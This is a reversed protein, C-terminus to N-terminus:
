FRDLELLRIPGVYVIEPNAKAPRYDEVRLRLPLTKLDAPLEPLPAVFWEGNFRTIGLDAKWLERDGWLIRISRYGAWRWKAHGFGFDEKTTDALYLLLALRDRHGSIPLNVPLECFSNANVHEHKSVAFVAARSSGHEYLGGVWDGWFTERPEPLVTALVHNHGEWVGTGIQVPPDSFNKLMQDAPAVTKSYDTIWTRLDAQRKSLLEKWDAPTATARKRWWAVYGGVEGAKALDKEVQSVEALVRDRVADILQDAKAVDGDHVANLLKSQHEPWWYEPYPAQAAALGTEIEWGMPQLYDKELLAPDLLSAPPAAQRLSALMPQLAKLEAQVQARDAQSKLRAPCRPASETQSSWFQFRSHIKPLADDFARATAVQAPGFVMDYVRRRIAQQDYQEPRWSWWGIVPVLYHQLAQWGDWPLVAHVYRGMEKLETVTPHNWGDALDLVPVYAGGRYSLSPYHLRPWNHWWSPRVKLGIAEGDAADEACPISTWYWVAQEMGPVSVVDRNFKYNIVQYAGKPPTVAIADGTIQHERGLALVKSMMGKPDEGPGKDDFSAWLADAGLDIFEKFTALVAEQETKPVGTNVAAYVRLGRDRADRIVKGLEEKKLKAGAEFAYIGDRLDIFNIRSSMICDWNEPKFFYQYHPHPRGRLPIGPWDRITAAQVTLKGDRKGLLQFLTDQGYIVARPNRAAVVATVGGVEAWVKLAYSEPRDPVALQQADCLRALAPFTGPQGLYVRLKADAPVNAATQTPWKQGFRREVYRCFLTAAEREPASAQDSLVVVGGGEVSLPQGWEVESVAPMLEVPAAAGANLTAAILGCAFLKAPSNRM